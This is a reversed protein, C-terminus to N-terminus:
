FEGIPNKDKDRLDVLWYYRDGHDTKLKKASQTSGIPTSKMPTAKASTSKMPTFNNQKSKLSSPTMFTKKKPVADGEENEDVEDESSVKLREAYSRKKAPTYAEDDGSGDDDSDQIVRSKVIKKVSNLASNTVSKLIGANM